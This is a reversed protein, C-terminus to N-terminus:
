RIQAYAILRAMSQWAEIIKHPKDIYDKFTIKDQEPQLQKVLYTDNHFSFNSLFAPIIYQM